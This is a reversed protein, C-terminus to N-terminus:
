FQGLTLNDIDRIDIEASQCTDVEQYITHDFTYSFLIINYSRQIDIDFSRLPAKSAQKMFYKADGTRGPSGVKRGKKPNTWDSVKRTLKRSTRYIHINLYESLITSLLM